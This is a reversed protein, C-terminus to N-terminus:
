QFSIYRFQLGKMHRVLHSYKADEPIFKNRVYFDGGEWLQQGYFSAILRLLCERKPWTLRISWAAEAWWARYRETVDRCPERCNSVQLLCGPRGCFHQTSCTVVLVPSEGKLAQLTAVSRDAHLVSRGTSPWTYLSLPSVCISDVQQWGRRWAIFATCNCTGTETYKAVNICFDMGEKCETAPPPRTLCSNGHDGASTTCISCRISEGVNYYM